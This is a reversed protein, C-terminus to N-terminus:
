MIKAPTMYQACNQSNKTTRIFPCNPDPCQLDFDYSSLNTKTAKQGVPQMISNWLYKGVAAHGFQSFHFCDPAFFDLNVTGDANKPPIIDDEFFPQIVLTFDDSEYYGKDQMDQEAKMYGICVDAIEQDTFGSDQECPCEFVHLTECFIQNKDVMRLMKMNFMGTLSIITKPLYQKLIDITTRLNQEFAKPSHPGTTNKDHCYACIDNGGIFINILKWDNQIDIESHTQMLQVLQHAQGILDGSEAGPYGLNLRAQRWVDSSCIGNAYGFINPNFKRLVNPVTVHEDLTKDGGGQFALGRYQLLVAVADGKPAGAGNAATLSDGLAAVIKIDGPRISHVNTPNTSSPGMLNPCNFTPAGLDALSYIGVFLTALSLFTCIWPTLKLNGM